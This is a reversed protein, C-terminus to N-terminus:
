FGPAQAMEVDEHVALSPTPGPATIIWVARAKGQQMMANRIKEAQAAPGIAVACGGGGSGVVKYGWAGAQLAATRITELRDTSLHLGDRLAAHHRNMLTGIRQWLHVATAGDEDDNDCHQIEQFIRYAERETERNTLTAELLTQEDLSLMSSTPTTNNDWDGHLKNHLLDLRAQKCRYLHQWTEKPEGSDALILVAPAYMTSSLLREYRWPDNHNHDPGGAGGIRLLGGVGCALHDMTGGPANFHTVEARFALQAVRLLRNATTWSSADDDEGSLRALLQVLAVCFASSTSCGAQMPLDHTVTSTLRLLQGPRLISTWGEIDHCERLVALCFDPPPQQQEPGQQEDVHSPPAVPVLHDLDYVRPTTGFLAPVTLEIIRSTTSRRRRSSSSSSPAGSTTSSSPEV